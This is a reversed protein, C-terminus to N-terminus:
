FAIYVLKQGEYLKNGSFDKVLIRVPYAGPSLKRNSDDLGNWIFSHEGATITNNALSKVRRGKLDFVTISTRVKHHKIKLQIICNENKYPSFPNNSIFFKNESPIFDMKVSNVRGPTSVSLSPAWNQSSPDLLVSIRETSVGRYPSWDANYTLTEYTNGLFDKLVLTEGTNKLNKLGLFVPVNDPINYNERMYLSDKVSSTLLAFRGEWDPIYLSDSDTFFRYGAIGSVDRIKYFEIWEPEDKNPRYMIENIVVPHNNNLYANIQSTVPIEDDTFIEYLYFIYGTLDPLSTEIEIFVSDHITLYYEKCFTLSSESEKRQSIKLYANVTEELGSNTIEIKHILKSNLASIQINNINLCLDAPTKSNLMLPTSLNDDSCYLWRIDNDTWPNVRELSKGRMSAQGVYSVSDIRVTENVFLEITEATNNLIAWTSPQFVKKRNTFPHREFFMEANQTIIFYDNAKIITSFHAKGGAADVIHANEIIFDEDSRNFFEIWEPENALPQFQIENIIIPMFGYWYSFEYSNNSNDVDHPYTIEVFFVNVNNEVLDVDLEFVALKNDFVVNIVSDYIIDNNFRVSIHLNLKNVDITSLDHILTHLTHKYGDFVLYLDKVSLDYYKFNEAKPTPFKTAQWNLVNNSDYGNPRRALTYGPPALSVFSLAPANIDDPLEYTNPSSYLVTDTYSRDASVLRVGVTNSGGNQLDLDTIYDAFSVDYEGIVIYEGPQIIIDPFTFDTRFQRGATEITWNHLSYPYVSPNYIEIWEKGADPGVPDYMVENIVPMEFSFLGSVLFFIKALCILYRSKFMM